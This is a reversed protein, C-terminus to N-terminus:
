LEARASFDNRLAASSRLRPVVRLWYRISCRPSSEHGRELHSAALEREPEVNPERASLPRDEALGLDAGPQNGSAACELVEATQDPPGARELDNEAPVVVVRVRGLSVSPNLRAMGSAASSVNTALKTRRTTENSLCASDAALDNM